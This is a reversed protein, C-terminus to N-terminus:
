HMTGGAGSGLLTVVENGVSRQEIEAQSAERVDEVKLRLRLAIGALPHNADLVVHDPYIETVTYLADKPMGETASGAPLGDFQMGCELHEPFVARKEFCVLAPDYAGFAQEPELQVRTEFGTHQDSLAAEVGPLLDDGGFLFEVPRDLADIFRDQADELRWTLAVVCPATIPM